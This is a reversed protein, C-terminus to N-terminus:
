SCAAMLLPLSCALCQHQFSALLVLAAQQVAAAWGCAPLVIVNSLSVQQAGALSPPLLFRGSQLLALDVTRSDSSSNAVLTLNQLAWYANGATVPM